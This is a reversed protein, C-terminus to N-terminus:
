KSRYFKYVPGGHASRVFYLGAPLRSVPVANYGAQLRISQLPRGGADYIVVAVPAAAAVPLEDRVSNATLSFAPAPGAKVLIIDSYGATGGPGVQKVRYYNNGKAPNPDTYHYAASGPLASAMVQGMSNFSVGDTSHELEFLNQGTTSALWQLEIKDDGALGKFGSIAAPLLASSLGTTGCFCYIGSRQSIPGASGFIRFYYMTGPLLGSLHLQVGSSPGGALACGLETLSGCGPGGSLAQIGIVFSSNQFCSITATGTPAYFRYWVDSADNAASGCSPAPACADMTTIPLCAIKNDLSVGGNCSTGTNCGYIWAPDFAVSSLFDGGGGPCLQATTRLALLLCFFSILVATKM